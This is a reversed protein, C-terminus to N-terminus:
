NVKSITKKFFPQQQENFLIMEYIGASLSALTMTKNTCMSRELVVLRGTSDYIHLGFFPVASVVNIEDRTPIPFLAVEPMTEEDIGVSADAPQLQGNTISIGDVAQLGAVVSEGVNWEITVNGIVASGGTANVVSPTIQQAHLAGCFFLTPIIIKKM